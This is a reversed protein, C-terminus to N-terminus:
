EISFRLTEDEVEISVRRDTLSSHRLLFEALPATLLTEVTRQLPRAGYRADFGKKALLEVVARTWVLRINKAALGERRTVARIENETIQYLTELALPKFHVVADLRNFFEPRFFARIEKESSANGQGGFGIEGQALREAGLNSTMIVVTSTFNTVRGFRDTLRGEDFLGLLVDFIQADAKEIEDFLVVSFPKERVKQILESPEGDTRTLLRAASGPAGYESMDLRVLKEKEDGGGGFFFRALSKALETKGVGTPGAFLFVGLPRQPDNLGAKFTTVVGAVQRCADTQGIVESEFVAAVDAFELTIEDRLFLEPLGTLKVFAEIVDEATVEKQGKKAAKEFVEATFLTTKSPFKQYPLFRAFLRYILNVVNSQYEIKLNRASQDAIRTLVNLAKDATFDPLRVIQFLGEFGPLLRRCADLEAATAEAVIRIEGRQLYPTLFAALSEEPARGGYRVLDLLNEVCLVGDIDALEGIINELREEWQGLYKMGAILRGGGTQWFRYRPKKDDYASNFDDEEDDPKKLLDREIQRVADTLVSTKGIGNEGLIIVSAREETLRRILDATETEREFARSVKKLADKAGLPEAVALLNPTEKVTETSRSKRRAQFAIEELAFSKPPLHKVLALTTSGRLDEQVKMAVLSKLESERDFSFEIDFLPLAASFNGNETKWYICAVRLPVSERGAFARKKPPRNKKKQRNAAREDERDKLQYEPRVEVRFEALQVDTFDEADRWWENEFLWQLYEKVEAVAAARTEGFAAPPFYDEGTVAQASFSGNFNEWVLVPIRFLSM